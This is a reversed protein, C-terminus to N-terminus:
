EARTIVRWTPSNSEMKTYFNSQTIESKLSPGGFEVLSIKNVDKISWIEWVIEDKINKEVWKLYKSSM